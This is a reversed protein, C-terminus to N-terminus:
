EVPAAAGEVVDVIVSPCVVEGEEDADGADEASADGDDATALLAGMMPAWLSWYGGLPRSKVVLIRVFGMGDRLQLDSVCVPMM